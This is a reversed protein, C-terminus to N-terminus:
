DIPNINIKSWNTVSAEGYLIAVPRQMIGTPLPLYRDYLGKEIRPVGDFRRIIHTKVDHQKAHVTRYQRQRSEFCRALLFTLCCQVSCALAAIIIDDSQKEAFACVDFCCFLHQHLLRKFIFDYNLISNM